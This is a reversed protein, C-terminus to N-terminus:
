KKRKVRMGIMQRLSFLHMGLAFPVILGTVWIFPVQALFTNAPENTFLRIPSPTSVAAIFVITGLLLIGFVNWIIIPLRQIKRKFFVSTAIMATIGVIIDYNFGIFTMQFPVFGGCFGLWLMIEMPIRFVQVRVLKTPPIVKLMKWFHKSFVLYTILFIPPIFSVLIKPPLFDFDEFFGYYAVWSLISLWFLIGTVFYLLINKIRTESVRYAILVDRYTTTLFYVIYVVILITLIQCLPYFLYTPM